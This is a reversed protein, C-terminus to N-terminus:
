RPHREPNKWIRLERSRGPLVATNFVIRTAKSSKLSRSDPGRECISRLRRTHESGPARLTIKLPPVCIAFGSAILGSVHAMLTTAAALAHADSHAIGFSM